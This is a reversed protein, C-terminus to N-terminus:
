NRSICHITSIPKCRRGCKTCEVADVDPEVIYDYHRWLVDNLPKCVFVFNIAPLITPRAASLSTALTDLNIRRSKIEMDFRLIKM